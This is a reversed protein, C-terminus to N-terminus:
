RFHGYSRAIARPSLYIGLYFWTLADRAEQEVKPALHVHNPHREIYNWYM